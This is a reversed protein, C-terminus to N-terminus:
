KKQNSRTAELIAVTLNAAEIYAALAKKANKQAAILDRPPFAGFLDVPNASRLLDEEDPSQEETWTKKEDNVDAKNRNRLGGGDANTKSSSMNEKRIAAVEEVADVLEFHDGEEGDRTDKAGEVALGPTSERLVARARLEERVDLGSISQGNGRQRRAKNLSWIACKLDANGKKHVDAYAQLLCVATLHPLNASSLSTMTRHTTNSHSRHARRDKARDPMLADGELDM